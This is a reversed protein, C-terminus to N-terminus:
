VRAEYNEGNGCTKEASPNDGRKGVHNGHRAIYITDLGHKDFPIHPVSDDLCKYEGYDNGGHCGVIAIIHLHASSTPFADVLATTALEIRM